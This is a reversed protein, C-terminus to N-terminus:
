PPAELASCATPMRQESMSARASGFFHFGAALGGIIVIHERSDAPIADAIEGIVRAPSVDSM